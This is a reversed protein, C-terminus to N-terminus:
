VRFRTPSDVAVMRNQRATLFLLVTDREEAIDTLSNSLKATIIDVLESPNSVVLCGYFKMEKRFAVVFKRGYKNKKAFFSM